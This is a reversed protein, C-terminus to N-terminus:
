FKRRSAIEIKLLLIIINEVDGFYNDYTRTYCVSSTIASYTPSLVMLADRFMWLGSLRVWSRPTVRFAFWTFTMLISSATVRNMPAMMSTSIGCGFAALLM